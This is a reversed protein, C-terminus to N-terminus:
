GHGLNPVTGGFVHELTYHRFQFIREIDPRVLLREMWRFGPSEYTVDDIVRTGSGDREFTHTHDWSTYPGKTQIDSFCHPPDWLTIKSTWKIPIGKVKLKYSLERGEHMEVPTEDVMRFHMNAPTLVQLNEPQSFFRFVEDIPRAIWQSAHLHTCGNEKETFKLPEPAPTLTM